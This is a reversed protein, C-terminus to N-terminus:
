TEMTPGGTHQSVDFIYRAVDHVVDFRGHRSLFEFYTIGARAVLPSPKVPRRHIDWTGAALKRKHSPAKKM